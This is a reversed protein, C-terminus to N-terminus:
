MEPFLRVMLKHAPCRLPPIDELASINISIFFFVVAPPSFLHVDFPYNPLLFSSFLTIKKEPFALPTTSFPSDLLYM